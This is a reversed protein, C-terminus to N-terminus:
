NAERIGDTEVLGQPRYIPLDVIRLDLMRTEAEQERAAKLVINLAQAGHSGTRMSGSVGLIKIM